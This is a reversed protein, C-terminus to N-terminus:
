EFSSRSGTGHNLLDTLWRGWSGAGTRICFTRIPSAIVSFPRQQRYEGLVQDLGTKSIRDRGYIWSTGAGLQGEIHCTALSIFQWGADQYIEVTFAM